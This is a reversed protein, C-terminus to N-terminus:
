GNRPPKRIAGTGGMRNSPDPPPATCDADGYVNGVAGYTDGTFGYFCLGEM